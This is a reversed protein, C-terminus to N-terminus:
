IKYWLYKSSWMALVHLYCNIAKWHLIGGGFYTVSSLLPDCFDSSDSTLPLKREVLTQNGSGHVAEPTPLILTHLAPAQYDLGISLATHKSRMKYGNIQKPLALM